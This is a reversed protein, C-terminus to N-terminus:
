YCQKGKEIQFFDKKLEFSGRQQLGVEKSFWYSFDKTFDLQRMTMSHALEQPDTLWQVQKGRFNLWNSQIIWNQVKEAYDGIAIELLGCLQDDSLQIPRIPAGLMVRVVKFLDKIEQTLEM